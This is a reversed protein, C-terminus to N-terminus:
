FPAWKLAPDREWGPDKNKKKPGSDKRGAAILQQKQPNTKASSNKSQM